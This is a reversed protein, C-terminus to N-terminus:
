AADRYNLNRQRGDCREIKWRSRVAETRPLKTIEIGGEKLLSCLRKLSRGLAVASPPWYKPDHKTEPRGTVLDVPNLKRYFDDLSVEAYGGAPIWGDGIVLERIAQALEHNEILIASAEGQRGVFAKLFEGPKWPLAPECAAVWVAFDAMRPLEPLTTKELNLLGTVVADLTAGLCAAHVRHFEGWVYEEPLRNDPAIYPLNLMISRDLLDDRMVGADIGNLLCPLKVAILTIETNSYFTRTRFAAGTSFRCLTDSFDARCGSMNDFALIGANLASLIADEENKPPAALEATSPDLFSQLMSVATSKASGKAGEIVLHPFAGKPLFTGVIWGVMLRWQIDDGVNILPRLADLTGGRVPEPLPLAGNPRRFLVPCDTVVEWGVATVKVARWADDCLDLYIADRSRAFRVYVEANTGARCKARITEIASTLSEGSPARDYKEYYRHTLIERVRGGNNGLAWVEKHTGTQLRVYADRAPGSHFYEFDDFLQFLKDAQSSPKAAHSARWEKLRSSGAARRAKAVIASDDLPPVCARANEKRLATVLTDFTPETKSKIFWSAAFATIYHDRGGEAIGGAAAAKFKKWDSQLKTEAAELAEGIWEPLEPLASYLSVLDCTLPNAPDLWRYTGRSKHNSPEVLFYGPNFDLGPAFGKSTAADMVPKFLFHRGGGGSEAHCRQEFLSTDGGNRPDVDVVSFGQPVMGINARPWRGWWERIQDLGNTADNVGHPTRPHKGAFQCASGKPCSCCGDAGIEYVPLIEYGNRAYALAFDLPSKTGPAIISTIPSEGPVEGQRGNSDGFRAATELGESM